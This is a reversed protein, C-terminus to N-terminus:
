PREPAPRRSTASRRPCRPGGAAKALDWAHTLLEQVYGSVAIRGPMAGWPLAVQADLKADDAWAAQARGAAARYAAPWGDDPVGDVRAPVALADGSEGATAVRNMGGVIHSLLARVDYETCPTPLGLQSPGIAAVIPEAPVGLRHRRRPDRNIGFPAPGPADPEKRAVPRVHGAQRQVLRPRQEHEGRTARLLIQPQSRRGTRGYQLHHPRYGFRKAGGGRRGALPYQYVRRSPHPRRVRQPLQAHQLRRHEGVPPQPQPVAAAAV